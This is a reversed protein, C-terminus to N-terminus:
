EADLLAPVIKTWCIALHTDGSSRCITLKWGPDIKVHIRLLSPVRARREVPIVTLADCSVKVRFILGRGTFTVPLDFTVKSVINQQLPGEQDNHRTPRM